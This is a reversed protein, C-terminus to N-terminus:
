YFIYICGYDGGEGDSANTKNGGSVSAEPIRTIDSSHVGGSGGGGGGGHAGNGGRGWYSHTQKSYQTGYEGNGGRGGRIYQMSGSTGLSGDGGNWGHTRLRPDLVYSGAGGGGGGGGSFAVTSSVVTYFGSGGKGLYTTGTPAFGNYDEANDGVGEEIDTSASGGAGGDYGNLGDVGFSGLAFWEGFSGSQSGAYVVYGTPIREGDDSSYGGFSTATGDAGDVQVTEDVTKDGGLGGSGLSWSLSTLGTCDITKELIKGGVGGKGGLGGKGGKGGAGEYLNGCGAYGFTCTQGGTGGGIIVAKIYPHEKQFVSQPITWTGSDSNYHSIFDSHSYIKSRDAYGTYGAIFKCTAKDFSSVNVSVRTLFADSSDEFADTITYTEGVKEGDLVIDGEVTKKASTYALLRDAVNDINCHTILKNGEIRLINDTSAGTSVSTEFVNEVCYYATITGSGSVVASEPSISIVDLSDTAYINQTYIPKEFYITRQASTELENTEYVVQAGGKYNPIGDAIGYGVVVVKSIPSEYNVSGSLYTRNAPIVGVSDAHGAGFVMNCSADRTIHIDYAFLLQHLADRQTSRPLFGEICLDSLEPAISYTYQSGSTGIIHELASSLSIHKFLKPECWRRSMLGIQSIAHVMYIDRQERTISQVFYKGTLVNDSYYLVPTAYEADSLASGGGGGAGYLVEGGSAELNFGDSSLLGVGDLPSIVKAELTDITLEAGTVDVTNTYQVSFITDDEFSWTDGVEIRKM